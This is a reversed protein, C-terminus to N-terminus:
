NWLIEDPFVGGSFATEVRHVESLNADSFKLDILAFM